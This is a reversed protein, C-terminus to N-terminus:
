ETQGEMPVAPLSYAIDGVLHSETANQQRTDVQARLHIHLGAQCTSPRAMQLSDM